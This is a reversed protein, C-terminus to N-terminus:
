QAASRPPTNFRTMWQAWWETSASPMCANTIPEQRTIRQQRQWHERHQYMAPRGKHITVVAGATVCVALKRRVKEYHIGTAKAITTLTHEKPNDKLFQEIAARDASKTSRASESIHTKNM